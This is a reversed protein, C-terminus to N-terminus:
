LSIYTKKGKARFQINLEKDISDLYCYFVHRNLYYSLISRKETVKTILERFTCEEENLIEIIRDRLNASKAIREKFLVRCNEEGEVIKGHGSIFKEIKMTLLKKVSGQTTEYNSLPSNVDYGIGTELDILDGALLIREEPFYYGLNCPTHGPLGIVEIPIDHILREKDELTKNVKIAEYTGWLFHIAKKIVWLPYNELENKLFRYGTFFNKFMIDENELAEVAEKHSFVEAKFKKQFYSALTCHDWHQHTICVRKIKSIEVLNKRSLKKLIRYQYTWVGPDIIISDNKGTVVLTNVAGMGKSIKRQDKCKILIIGDSLFHM